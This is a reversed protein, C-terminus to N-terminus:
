PVGRPLPLQRNLTTGETWPCGTDLLQVTLCVSAPLARWSRSSGTPGAPAWVADVDLSVKARQGIGPRAGGLFGGQFVCIEM